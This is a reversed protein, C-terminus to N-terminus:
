FACPHRSNQAELGIFSSDEDLKKEIGQILDKSCDIYDVSFESESIFKRRYYDGKEGQAADKKDKPIRFYISEQHETRQITIDVIYVHFLVDKDNKIWRDHINFIKKVIDGIKESYPFLFYLTCRRHVSNNRPIDQGNIFESLEQLSPEDIPRYPMYFSIRHVRHCITGQNTKEEWDRNNLGRWHTDLLLQNIKLTQEMTGFIANYSTMPLNEPDLEESIVALPAYYLDAVQSLGSSLSVPSHM